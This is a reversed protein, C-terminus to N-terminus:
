FLDTIEAVYQYRRKVEEIPKGERYAQKDYHTGGILLRMEDCTIVDALWIVGEADIGFEFKIDVLNAGHEFFKEALIEFFNCADRRITDIAAPTDPVNIVETMPIMAFFDDRSFTVHPDYLKLMGKDAIEILPDDVPLTMGHWVKGSTKLYLQYTLKGLPMGRAIGPFMELFSGYAFARVVVELSIMKCKRALFSVDDYPGVYASEFGKKRLYRFINITMRNNLAGKGDMVKTFKPDDRATIDNKSAVICLEPHGTYPYIIKTKGQTLEKGYTAM